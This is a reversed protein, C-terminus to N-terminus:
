NQQYFVQSILNLLRTLLIDMFGIFFYVFSRCGVFKTINEKNPKILLNKM